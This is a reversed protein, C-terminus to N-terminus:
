FLQLGSWLFYNSAVLNSFIQHWSSCLESVVSCCQVLFWVRSECVPSIINLYLHKLVCKRVGTVPWCPLLLCEQSVWLDPCRLLWSQIINLKALTSLRRNAISLPNLPDPAHWPWPVHQERCPHSGRPHRWAGISVRAAPPSWGAGGRTHAVGGHHESRHRLMEWGGTWSRHGGVGWGGDSLPEVM